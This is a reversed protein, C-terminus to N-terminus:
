VLGEEELQRALRAFRSQECSVLLEDRLHRLLKNRNGQVHRWHAILAQQIEDDSIRVRIPLAPTRMGMLADAVTEIDGALSNESAQGVLGVFHRLARSAFDSKTGPIPSDPGDLRSDYPLVSDGLPTDRLSESAGTLIRIKRMDTCPISLLEEKIMELYVSPLAVFVRSTAKGILDALMGKSFATNWWDSAMAGTPCKKLVNEDTPGATTMAYSPIKDLSGVIGLGASVIYHPMQTTKAAWSADSFARGGYLTQATYRKQTVEVLMRWQSAVDPLAGPTLSAAHLGQEIPAKKRSSCPSVIMPATNRIVTKRLVTKAM